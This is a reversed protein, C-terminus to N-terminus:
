AVEARLFKQSTFVEVPDRHTLRDQVPEVSEQRRESSASFTKWPVCQKPITLAPFVDCLEGAWRKGSALAEGFNCDKWWTTVTLDDHVEVPFCRRPSRFAFLNKLHKRESISHCQTLPHLLRAVDTHIRRRDM